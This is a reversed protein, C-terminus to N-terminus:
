EEPRLQPFLIVERISSVDALVMLLRDIGVGEGATPPMGYELARLYDEDIIQGAEGMETKQRAQWEFRERQDLPDNLESFANALEIGAVYLEFREALGPDADKRRSLPSVDVPHDIIFTPQVLGPAVVSEFIETIIKGSTWDPMPEIGLEKARQQLYILDESKEPLVAEHDVVAQRMSIRRWPRSWDMNQGQYSFTLSGFIEKVVATLMEETFDMLDIYTAYALYFELM